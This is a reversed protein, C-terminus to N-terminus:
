HVFYVVTSNKFIIPRESGMVTTNRGGREGFSKKGVAEGGLTMNTKHM